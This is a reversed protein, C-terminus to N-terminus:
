YTLEGKYTMETPKFRASRYNGTVGPIYLDFRLEKVGSLEAREFLLRLAPENPAPPLHGISKIKRRGLIMESEKEMRAIEESLSFADLDSVRVSVVVLNKALLEELEPDSDLRKRRRWEAEALKVPAASSLFVPTPPFGDRANSRAMQGWPSETFLRVIEADTWERPAKAEWFPAAALLLALVANLYRV